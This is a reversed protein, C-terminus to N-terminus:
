AAEAEEPAPAACAQIQEAAKQFADVENMAADVGRMVPNGDKDVDVPIQVDGTARERDIDARLAASFEPSALRSEDVPAVPVPAGEAAPSVPPRGQPEAPGKAWEAVTRPNVQLDHLAGQAREPTLAVLRAAVAAAEDPPMAYGARRAIQAVGDALLGNATEARGQAATAEFPLRPAVEGTQVGAAKAEEALRSALARTAEVPVARVQKNAARHHGIAAEPNIHLDPPFESVKEHEVHGLIGDWRHTYEEWKMGLREVVSKEAQTAIEHAQPYPYGRAMLTQEVTEHVAVPRRLEEPVSPDVYVPGSLDKTSNAGSPMPREVIQRQMGIEIAEQVSTRVPMTQGLMPQTQGLNEAEIQGRENAIEALRGSIQGRQAALAQRQVIPAAAERLAEPTTDVLIQDRRDSLARRAAADTTAAIQQEVAQLRNLRDAASLDGQPLAEIQGALATDQERLQAEESTLRISREDFVPLSFAREGQLRMMLNRSQEELDPTIIDSVDVPMGSLINEISSALAWRHAVEGAAGPYVNSSTINAESEALNGADRVSTPWAGTKLRTWLNGLARTTGGLLAGEGTAMLINPLAAEQEYGPQVEERYPAGAAEIGAQSVGGIVGWRLAAALLSTSEAEPAATAAVLNIPDTAQAAAGGLFLGLGGGTTREREGMAAYAGEAERSKAVANEELQDPSLEPQGLKKAAENVQPLLAQAPPPVFGVGPVNFGSFDISQNVDKGTRASLDDIHDQLAELRATEGSTSQGFLRGEQWAADFTEGFTAPLDPLEEGPEFAGTKDGQWLDLM